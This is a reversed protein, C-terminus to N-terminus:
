ETVPVEPTRQDQADQHGRQQLSGVVARRLKSLHKGDHPETGSYHSEVRFKKASRYREELTQTHQAVAHQRQGGCEDYTLYDDAERAVYLRRTYEGHPTEDHHPSQHPRTERRDTKKPVTLRQM